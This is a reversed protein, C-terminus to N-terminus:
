LLLAALADMARRCAPTSLHENAVSILANINPPDANDMDDYADDLRTQFRFYRDEELLQEAIYDTVDAAGDMLVDIIPVAWELAGWERASAASIPRTTAGTGFSGVVLHELGLGTRESANLRVAEAMACATPNNAAVGGDILPVQAGRVPLVTAPFYTPASASAKAVQWAPLEAWHPRNNKMVEASRALTNYATVLIPKVKLEGFRVDGFVRRLERELGADSYKPASPGQSFTRVARDWLREARGPFIARGRDRYLSVMDRAPIGLGIGCALIAGTSTGALMDVCQHLPRGLRSELADLWVATIIGRIGGGDFCLM